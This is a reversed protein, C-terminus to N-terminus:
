SECIKRYQYKDAKDQGPQGGLFKILCHKFVLLDICNIRFNLVLPGNTRYVSVQSRPYSSKQLTKVM